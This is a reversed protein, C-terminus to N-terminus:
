SSRRRSERRSSTTEQHLISKCNRCINQLSSAIKGFFRTEKRAMFPASSMRAGGNIVLGGDPGKSFGISKLHRRLRRKLNADRPSLRIPRRKKKM